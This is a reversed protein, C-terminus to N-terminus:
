AVLLDPRPEVQLRVEITDNADSVLWLSSTRLLRRMGRNERMVEARFSRIGARRAATVLEDRLLSGLGRMQLADAVVFAVEAADPPQQLRIYRGVGVVARGKWAVVAVHNWGDASVLYRWQEESLDTVTGHFRLYRSEPSLCQVFLRLAAM